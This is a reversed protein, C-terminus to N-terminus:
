RDESLEGANHQLLRWGRRGTDDLLLSWRTNGVPGLGSWRGEPLGILASVVARITGGHTVVVLPGTGASAAALADEVAAVARVAVEAYTEGGGRRVDGGRQWAHFEAPFHELVEANTLGQWTGMDIERLRPDVPVSLGLKAALPAATDRARELDSSVIAVPECRALTLALEAAQARGVEDLPLDLQGQFRRQANYATRGHRVLLVRRKM